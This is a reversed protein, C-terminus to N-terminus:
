WISVRLEADWAGGVPAASFVTLATGGNDV